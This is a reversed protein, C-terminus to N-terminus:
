LYREVRGPLHGGHRYLGIALQQGATRKAVTSARSHAGQETPHFSARM